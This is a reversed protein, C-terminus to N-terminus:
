QRCHWGAESCQNLVQTLATSKGILSPSQIQILHGKAAEQQGFKALSFALAYHIEDDLKQGKSWRLEPQLSSILDWRNQDVMMALKQRMREKADPVQLNLWQAKQLDGQQRYIEAAHYSYKPVTRAVAEFTGAIARLMQKEYYLPIASLSLDTHTPFRLRAIELFELTNHGLLEALALADAAKATPRKIYHVSREFAQRQLGLELMLRVKEKVITFSALSQEGATLTDWAAQHDKADRDCLAKQVLHKEARLLAAGAKKYSAQCANINKSRFHTEGVRLHLDAETSGASLPLAKAFKQLAGPLEGKALEIDGFLTWYKLQGDKTKSPGANHLAKLAEDVKGNTLLARALDIGEFDDYQADYAAAPLSAASAPTGSGFLTLALILHIM